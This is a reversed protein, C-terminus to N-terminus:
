TSMANCKEMVCVKASVGIGCMCSLGGVGCSLCLGRSAKPGNSCASRDNNASFRATQVEVVCANGSGSGCFKDDVVVNEWCERLQRVSATDV